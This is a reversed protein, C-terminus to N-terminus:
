MSAWAHLVNAQWQYVTGPWQHTLMGCQMEIHHLVYLFGIHNYALWTTWMVDLNTKRDQTSLCLTAKATVVASREVKPKGTGHLLFSGM